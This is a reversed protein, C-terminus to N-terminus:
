LEPFIVYRLLNSSVERGIHDTSLNLIGCYVLNWFGHAAYNEGLDTLDKQVLVDLDM